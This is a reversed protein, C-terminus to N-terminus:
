QPLFQKLEVTFVILREISPPEKLSEKFKEIASALVASESSKFSEDDTWLTIVLGVNPDDKSLLSLVGRYGKMKRAINGFTEDLEHFVENRKGDKFLWRSYRAIVM